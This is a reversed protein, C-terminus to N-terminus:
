KAKRNQKIYSGSRHNKLMFSTFYQVLYEQFTLYIFILIQIKVLLFYGYALCHSMQFILPQYVFLLMVLIIKPVKIMLILLIYIIKLECADQFLNVLVFLISIIVLFMILHVVFLLLRFLIFSTLSLKEMFKLYISKCLLLLVDLNFLQLLLLDRRLLGVSWTWRISIDMSIILILNIQDTIKLIIKVFTNELVHNGLIM